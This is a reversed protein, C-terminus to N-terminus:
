PAPIFLKQGVRLVDASQLNNAQIIDATRANYAKAIASLTEGPAVTHEYGENSIARRSGGSSGGTRPASAMLGAMRKSLSDVIEKKDAERAADVARIRRQLDDITANLGSLQAQTSRTQEAGAGVVQQNMRAIEMELADIRGRLRRLEDQVLLADERQQAMIMQQEQPNVVCGTPAVLAALALLAGPAIRIWMNKM